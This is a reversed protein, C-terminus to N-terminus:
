IKRKKSTKDSSKGSSPKSRTKVNKKKTQDTFCKEIENLLDMKTQKEKNKREGGIKLKLLIKLQKM